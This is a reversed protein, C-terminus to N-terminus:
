RYLGAHGLFSRIDKVCTPTLLNAILAIKEKDVEIRDHSIVHRLCNGKKGYFPM